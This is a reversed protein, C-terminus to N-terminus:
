EKVIEILKKLCELEPISSKTSFEIPQTSNVQIVIWYKLHKGNNSYWYCQINYKERFWRFAQQYLPASVTVGWKHRSYKEPNDILDQKFTDENPIVNKGGDYSLFTNRWTQIENISLTGKDSMRTVTKENFYGFCPEDFGLEKLALAQEYPIFEKEM